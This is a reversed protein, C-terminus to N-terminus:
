DGEAKSSSELRKSMEGKSSELRNLREDQKMSEWGSNIFAVVAIPLATAIIMGLNGIIMQWTSEALSDAFFSFALGIFIVVTGAEILPLWGGKIPISRKMLWIFSFFILAGGIAATLTYDYAM